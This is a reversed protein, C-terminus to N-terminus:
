NKRIGPAPLHIAIKDADKTMTILVDESGSALRQTDAAFYIPAPYGGTADGFLEPRAADYELWVYPILAHEILSALNWPTHTQEALWACAESTTARFPLELLSMDTYGAINVYDVIFLKISLKAARMPVLGVWAATSTYRMTV